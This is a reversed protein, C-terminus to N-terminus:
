FGGRHSPTIVEDRAIGIFAMVENKFVELSVNKLAQKAGYWFSVDDVGIKVPHAHDHNPIPGLHPAIQSRAADLM